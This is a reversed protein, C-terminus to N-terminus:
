AGGLYDARGQDDVDFAGRPVLCFENGEPDAMVLFGGDAYEPLRRGGLEEIRRREAAPDACSLDLHVRNKRADVDDVRQFVVGPGAGPGPDGGADAGAEATGRGLFVYPGVRAAIPRGLVQSWFEALREPERCDVVVDRIDVEAM